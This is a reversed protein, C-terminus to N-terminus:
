EAGEKKAKVFGKKFAEDSFVLNIQADGEAKTVKGKCGGCCFTVNAGAVAVKTEPNLDKGTIPCKAQVYQGTAVLQANAKAAFKATNKEFAEPCGQCCMYITADKYAVKAEPNIKKGSVPCKIDALPDKKDEANLAVSLAIAAIALMGVFLRAKM